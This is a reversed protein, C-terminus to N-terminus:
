EDNLAAVLFEINQPTAELSLHRRTAEVVMTMSREGSGGTLTIKVLKQRLRKTKPLTQITKKMEERFYAFWRHKRWSLTRYCAPQGVLLRCTDSSSTSVEWMRSPPIGAEGVMSRTHLVVYEGAALKGGSVVMVDKLEEVPLTRHEEEDDQGSACGEHDGGPRDPPMVEASDAHDESENPLMDLLRLHEPELAALSNGWM